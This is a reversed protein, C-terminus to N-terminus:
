TRLAISQLTTWPVSPKIPFNQLLDKVAPPLACRENLQTSSRIAVVGGALSLVSERWVVVVAAMRTSQRFCADIARHILDQNTSLHSWIEPVGLFVVGRRGKPLQKRARELSHGVTEESCVTDELKLKVELPYRDGEVEFDIDYDDGRATGRVYEFATGARRLFRGATLELNAAEVGLRDRRLTNLRDPLFGSIGQLNFMTEALEKLRAQHIVGDIGDDHLSGIFADAQAPDVLRRVWERGLLRHVIEVALAHERLEQGANPLDRRLRRGQEELDLQTVAQPVWAESAGNETV